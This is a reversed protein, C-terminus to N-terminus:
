RALWARLWMGIWTSYGVARSRIRGTADIVYYTPFASVSWDTATRTTGLLVPLAIGTDDVFEVVEGANDYDLAVARAWAVRGSDVLADLNGISALCVSCWPAFFYVIGVKDQGVVNQQEGSELVALETRPAMEDLPMGRVQWGHVAAFVATLLAVDFALSLWFRSRLRRWAAGIRRNGSCPNV